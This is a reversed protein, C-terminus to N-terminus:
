GQPILLDDGGGAARVLANWLEDMFGTDESKKCGYGGGVPKLYREGTPDPYMKLGCEAAFASFREKQECWVCDGDQRGDDIIDKCKPCTRDAM